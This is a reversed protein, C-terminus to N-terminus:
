EDGGPAATTNTAHPQAQSILQPDFGRGCEPCRPETQGRLDYGCHLCVPIRLEILHERLLKQMRRSFRWKQVRALLALCGLYMMPGLWDAAIPPLIPANAAIRNGFFRFVPVGVAVYLMLAGFRRWTQFQQRVIQGWAARAADDPLLQEEPIGLM